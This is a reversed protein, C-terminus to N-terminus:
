SNAYSMENMIENGHALIGLKFFSVIGLSKRFRRKQGTKEIKKLKGSDGIVTKERKFGNRKNTMPLETSSCGANPTSCSPQYGVLNLNKCEFGAEKLSYQQHKELKFNEMIKLSSSKEKTEEKEMRDILDHKENMLALRNDFYEIKDIDKQVTGIEHDILDFSNYLKKHTTNLISFESLVIDLRNDVVSIISKLPQFHTRLRQLEEQYIKDFNQIQSDTLIDQKLKNETIVSQKLSKKATELSLDQTVKPNNNLEQVLNTQSVSAHVKSSRTSLINMVKDDNPPVPSEVDFSSILSLNLHSDDSRSSVISDVRDRDLIQVTPQLDDITSTIDDTKLLNLFNPKLAELIEDIESYENTDTKSHYKSDTPSLDRSETITPSQIEPSKCTSKEQENPITEKETNNELRLNIKIPYAINGDNSGLGSSTNNTYSIGSDNGYSLNSKSKNLNMSNHSFVDSDANSLKSINSSSKEPILTEQIEKQNKTKPIEMNQINTEKNVLPSNMVQSSIERTGENVRTLPNGVAITESPITQLNNASSSSNDVQLNKQLINFGTTSKQITRSDVSQMNQIIDKDKWKKLSNRNTKVPLEPRQNAINSAM